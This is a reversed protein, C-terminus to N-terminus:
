NPCIRSRTGNLLIKSISMKYFRLDIREILIKVESMNVNGKTYVAISRDLQVGDTKVWDQAWPFLVAIEGDKAKFYLSWFWFYGDNTFPRDIKIFGEMRGAIEKFLRRNPKSFDYLTNLEKIEDIFMPGAYGNLETKVEQRSM